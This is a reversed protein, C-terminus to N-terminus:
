MRVWDRMAVLAEQTLREFHPLVVSLNFWVIILGLVLMMPFGIAFINLQPSARTIVGLAGNVILLAAMAPLAILMAAAYMWSGLGPLIYLMNGSIAAGVPLSVFSEALVAIMVLHGNMAVFLLTVLMLHFQSLVTVSVGNAPDMMSAFGLGMQMAMMQGTVVFIHFLVQLFFALAVGILMQEIALAVAAASLLAVEPPPPLQPALLATVVLAMVLRIRQPVLQTGVVPAMMLFGGIRLFPWALSALFGQLFDPDIDIM